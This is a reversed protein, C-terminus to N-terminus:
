LDLQSVVGVRLGLHSEAHQAIGPGVMGRPM